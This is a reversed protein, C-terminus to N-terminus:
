HTSSKSSLGYSYASSVQAWPGYHPIKIKTTTHNRSVPFAKLGFDLDPTMSRVYGSANWHPATDARLTNAWLFDARIELIIFKRIYYFLKTGSRVDCSVTM